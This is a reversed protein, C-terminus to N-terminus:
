TFHELAVYTYPTRIHLDHLSKKEGDETKGATVQGGTHDM